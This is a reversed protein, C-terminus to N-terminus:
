LSVRRPRYYLKATFKRGINSTNDSEDHLIYIRQKTNPQLRLKTGREAWARYLNGSSDGAYVLGRRDWLEDIYITNGNPIAFGLQRLFRYSDLPILQIYDLNVAGGGTKTARLSLTLAKPTTLRELFPPLQIAGLPQLYDDGTLALQPGAYVITSSLKIYLRLYISSDVSGAQFRAIPLFWAGRAAALMAATLTYTWIEAESDGAWTIAKHFGGSTLAGATSTGGTGSEAELTFVFNAIDNMHSMGVHIDEYTVSAGAANVLELRLPANVVGTAQAAAIELYNNLAGIITVTAGAAENVLAEVTVIEGAVGGTAVTYAGDNSASGRVWITDGTLFQALGNGTDAIKKTAATFSIGTGVKTIRPNHVPAGSTNNTVQHNSVQLQVATTAEWYWSREWFLKVLTTDGGWQARSMAKEDYEAVGRVVESRYETAAAATKLTVYVRALSVDKQAKRGQDLLRQITRIEDLNDAVTGDVVRIVCTESVTAADDLGDVDDPGPPNPIYEKLSFPSSTLTATTTGDTITIIYDRATM